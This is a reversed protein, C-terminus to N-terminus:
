RLYNYKTAVLREAVLKKVTSSKQFIVEKTGTYAPMTINGREVTQVSKLHELNCIVIKLEVKSDNSSKTTNKILELPYFLSRSMGTIAIHSTHAGKNKKNSNPVGTDTLIQVFGGDFLDSDLVRDVVIKDIGLHIFYAKSINVANELGLEAVM